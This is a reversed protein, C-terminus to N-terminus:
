FLMTADKTFLTVPAVHKTTTSKWDNTMTDTTQRQITVNLSAGNESPRFANVAAQWLCITMPKCSPETM